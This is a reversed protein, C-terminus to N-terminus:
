RPTRAARHGRLRPDGASGARPGAAAQPDARQGALLDRRQRRHRAGAVAAGRRQRHADAADPPPRVPPRPRAFVRIGHARQRATRDRNAAVATRACIALRHHRCGTKPAQLRPRVLHRRGLVGQLGGLRRRPRDDRVVNGDLDSKVGSAKKPWLLWLTQREVVDRLALLHAHLERASRVFCLFLDASRTPAPRSAHGEGAAAEAHRRLGQAIRAACVKNGPKVGLKAVTPKASMLDGPVVPDQRAQAIAKPLATKIRGWTTYTADPLLAKTAAVKEPEGDVFVLPLHRTAKAAACRRPRSRPRAVAAAVSRDRGRRAARRRLARMVVAGDGFDFDADFGLAELQKQRELGEDENWHILRVTTM